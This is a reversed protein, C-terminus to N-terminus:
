PQPLTLHNHTSVDPSPTGQTVRIRKPQTEAEFGAVAAREYAEFRLAVHLAEELNTPEKERIKNALTPNDLADLFADRGVIETTANSPGPYALVL